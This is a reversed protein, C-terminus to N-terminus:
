KFRSWAIGAGPAGDIPPPTCIAPRPNRERKGSLIAGTYTTKMAPLAFLFGLVFDLILALVEIRSLAARQSPADPLTAPKKSAMLRTGGAKPVEELKSRLDGELRKRTLEDVEGGPTATNRLDLPDPAAGAETYSRDSGGAPTPKIKEGPSGILPALEALLEGVQDESLAPLDELRTEWPSGHTWLLPVGTNHIGRVVVQQGQGLVEINGLTGEIKRKRPSGSPARFLL